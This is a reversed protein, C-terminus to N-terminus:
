EHPKTDDWLFSIPNFAMGRIACGTNHFTINDHEVNAFPEHTHGFYCHRVSQRWDPTATNLHHVLRRLTRKRPFHIKHMLRTMGVRDAMQYAVTAPGHRRGDRSWSERYRRLAATNMQSNACDGHLFLHESFQVSYEHWAFNHRDRTVRDLEPLFEVLCDHNGLVYHVECHPISGSFDRLWQIAERISHTHAAHTSWRFDFIDGNLVVLDAEHLRPQLAHMRNIGVSRQAFLHLDSVVLGRKTKTKIGSVIWIQCSDSSFTSDFTPPLTSRM